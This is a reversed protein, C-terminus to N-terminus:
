NITILKGAIFEGIREYGKNNPHLQDGNWIYPASHQEWNTGNSKYCNAVGVVTIYKGTNESALPASELNEFQKNTGDLFVM